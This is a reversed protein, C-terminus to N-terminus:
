RVDQVLGREGVSSASPSQSIVSAEETSHKELSPRPHTQATSGLHIDFFRSVINYAQQSEPLEVSYLFAHWMGEFVHLEAKRGANLLHAHTNSASSLMFDRSGTIILAAPFRSLLAPSLVPSVLPDRPSVQGFYPISEYAPPNPFPPAAATGGFLPMAYYASDGGYPWDAGSCFLGIAGPLPLGQKEKELWAVFQATLIGGFSCGYIGINQARFQELLERYVKEVDENAAPFRNPPAFRYDITIVRIRAVAAIPISEVLENLQPPPISTGGGHLNILVRHRNHESVGSKPLVVKTRIGGILRSEISVSYAAEAAQELRQMIQTISTEDASKIGAIAKSLQLYTRKAQESAYVSPPLAYAPVQLTGNSDLTPRSPSSPNSQALLAACTSAWAAVVLATTQLIKVLVNRPPKPTASM